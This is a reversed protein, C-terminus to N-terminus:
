SSNRYMLFDLYEFYIERKILHVLAIKMWVHLWSIYCLRGLFDIKLKGPLFIGVSKKLCWTDM